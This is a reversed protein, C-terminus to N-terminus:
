AELDISKLDGDPTPVTVQEYGAARMLAAGREIGAGVEEPRHADSGLSCPVGAEHFARLLELSPYCEGVPKRLGSTNVEVMGGRVAVAEAMAAYAECLDFSPYQGYKKPLDPHSFATFPVPSEVMSLWTEIYREWTGDVGFAEWAGVDPAYDLALGDLFHVSGLVYSYPACLRELEAQRGPLWDAEIGAVLCLGSERESLLEQLRSIEPLYGAQQEGDMSDEHDPDLTEPLWLHETQVLTSLGREEAARVMDEIGGSGHGSLESHTHCDVLVM